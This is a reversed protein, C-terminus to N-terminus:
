KEKIPESLFISNFTFNREKKRKEMFFAILIEKEV